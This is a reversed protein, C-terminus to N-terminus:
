SSQSLRGCRMVSGGGTTILAKYYKLAIYALEAQGDRQSYAYHTSTTDYKANRRLVTDDDDDYKIEM